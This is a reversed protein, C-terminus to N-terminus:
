ALYGTRTLGIARTDNPRSSGCYNRGVTCTPLAGTFFFSLSNSVVFSQKHPPSLPTPLTPPLPLVPIVCNHSCTVPNSDSYDAVCGNKTDDRLAGGPLLMAHRSYLLSSDSLCLWKQISTTTPERRQPNNRSFGPSKGPWFDFM